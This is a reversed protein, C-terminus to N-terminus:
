FGRGQHQGAFGATVGRVMAPYDVSVGFEITLPFAHGTHM